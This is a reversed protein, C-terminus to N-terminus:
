GVAGDRWFRELADPELPKCFRFGQMLHCGNASLFDSQADSEVGEAVVDLGLRRSLDIIACTLSASRAEGPSGTIFSRDIKLVDIPFDRLYALSSYGTGFDDIAIRVGLSKIATFTRLAGAADNLLLSETIELELWRAQMGTSELARAVTNVFDPRAVQAASVNVGVSVPPLGQRQWQVNQRCAAELMFKGIPVILRSQEAAQLFEGPALVGRQPHRWRLLAETGRLQMSRRDIRPQYVAFFQGQDVAHRLSSQLALQNAAIKNIEASYFQVRDKGNDKAQGLAIDASEILANADDGDGPFLAVGISLTPFIEAGGLTVVRAAAERLRQAAIQADHPTRLGSLIIAFENGSLRAVSPFADVPSGGALVDSERLCAGLRAAMTKIFADGHAHGLSNKIRRFDDIDALVVAGATANRRSRRLVLGLQERFLLRNPLGTLADFCTMKRLQAADTATPSLAGNAASHLPLPNM